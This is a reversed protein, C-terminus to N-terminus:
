GGRARRAEYAKLSTLAMELTPAATQGRRALMDGVIQDSEIAGGRELDRLMSATLPLGEAFLTTKAQELAPGRAPYGNAAAVGACEGLLAAITERGRPAALIDGITARMLCTASALTALFLWKEWMDQLMADSRQVDFGADSFAAALTLARESSGSPREGFSLVHFSSLHLITGQDDLTSSILCRGGMVRGAGFRADLRDLHQMGNLLPIIVTNPGMAPAFGDMASELDYAKCSLLVVDYPQTIQESLVVPPNPFHLDGHPSKVRLGHEALQAARRPRVLFTVDRGAQLLRAGFYGGTAGVGVVLIRM